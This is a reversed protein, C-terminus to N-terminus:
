AAVQPISTNLFFQLLDNSLRWIISNTLKIQQSIHAIHKTILEKYSIFYYVRIYVTCLMPTVLDIISNITFLHKTQLLEHFLSTVTTIELNIKHM